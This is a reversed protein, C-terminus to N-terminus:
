GMESSIIIIYRESFEVYSLLVMLYGLFCDYTVVEEGVRKVYCQNIFKLIVMLRVHCMSLDPFTIDSFNMTSLSFRAM